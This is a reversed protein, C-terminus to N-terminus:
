NSIQQGMGKIQLFVSEAPEVHIEELVVMYNWERSPSTTFESKGSFALYLNTSVTTDPDLLFEPMIGGPNAPVLMDGSSDHRIVFQKYCWGCQRNDSAVMLEDFATMTWADTALHATLCYQGDSSGIEEYVQSPWLYAERIKWAKTRDPSEYRLIEFHPGLANDAQEVTGRLSFKRGM